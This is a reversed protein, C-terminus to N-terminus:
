DPRTFPIKKFVNCVYEHRISEALEKSIGYKKVLPAIYDINTFRDPRELSDLFDEIEKTLKM